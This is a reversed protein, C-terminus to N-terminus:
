MFIFQITVYCAGAVMLAALFAAMIRAFLKNKKAM